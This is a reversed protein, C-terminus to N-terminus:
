QAQWLWQWLHTNGTDFEESYPAGNIQSDVYTYSNWPSPAKANSTVMNSGNDASNVDNAQYNNYVQPAPFGNSNNTIDIYQQETWCGSTCNALNTFWWSIGATTSMTTAVSSNLAELQSVSFGFGSEEDLIVGGWKLGAWSTNADMYSALNSVAAEYQSITGCASQPSIETLTPWHHANVSSITAQEISNLTYNCGGFMGLGEVIVGDTTYQLNGPRWDVFASNPSPSQATAVGPSVIIGLSLLTGFLM